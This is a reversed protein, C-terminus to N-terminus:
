HAHFYGARANASNRWSTPRAARLPRVLVVLAMESVNIGDWQDTNYIARIPVLFAPLMCGNALPEVVGCSYPQDSSTSSEAKLLYARTNILM